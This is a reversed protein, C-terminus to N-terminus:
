AGTIHDTDMYFNGFSGPLADLFEFPSDKIGAVPTIICGEGNAPNGAITNAYLPGEEGM